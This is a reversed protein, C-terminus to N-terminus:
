HVVTIVQPESVFPGSIVQYYYSGAPVGAFNVTLEYEGPAQNEDVLDLVRDGNINFLVIKVRGQLGISYNIVASGSAPNPSAPKVAYPTDGVSVLRLGEACNQDVVVQGPIDRIVCYQQSEGIGDSQDFDVPYSYIDLPSTYLNDVDTGSALYSDFVVKFFPEGNNTLPQAGNAPDGALDIEIMNDIVQDVKLVTWGEAQTGQLIIDAPNTRPRILTADYSIRTRMEYLGVGDISEPVADLEVAVEVPDGVKVTYDDRIFNTTELFLGNGALTATKTEDKQQDTIDVTAFFYEDRWNLGQPAGKDELWQTTQGNRMKTVYDPIFQVRIIGDQGGPVDLIGNAPEVITFRTADPGKHCASKM